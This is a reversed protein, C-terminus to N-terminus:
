MVIDYLINFLPFSRYLMLSSYQKYFNLAIKDCVYILGVFRNVGFETHWLDSNAWSTDRIHAMSLSEPLNQKWTRKPLMLKEHCYSSTGTTWQNTSIATRSEDMNGVCASGEGEMRLALLVNETQDGERSWSKLKSSSNSSNSIFLLLLLLLLLFLTLFVHHHMHSKPEETEM